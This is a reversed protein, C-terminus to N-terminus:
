RVERQRPDSRFPLVVPKQWDMGHFDLRGDGFHRIRAYHSYSRHPVHGKCCQEVLWCWRSGVIEKAASLKQIDASEETTMLRVGGNDFNADQILAVTCQISDQFGFTLRGPMSGAAQYWTVEVGGFKLRPGFVCHTGTSRSIGGYFWGNVLQDNPKLGRVEVEQKITKYRKVGVASGM